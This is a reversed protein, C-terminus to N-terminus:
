KQSAGKQSVFPQLIRGLALFMNKAMVNYSFNDIM